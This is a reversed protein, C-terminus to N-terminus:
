IEKVAMRYDHRVELALIVGGLLAALGLAGFLVPWGFNVSLFSVLLPSLIQGTSGLGNVLGGASATKEARVAEQVGAGAMLTDPGFTFAGIVGIAALNAQPGWRSVYPYCLCLLALTFMMTAGVAFRKSAGGSQSAYGALLVGGFGALEFVASMYGADVAKYRLEETMYLPLWFLFAYRLLKVQFYMAAIARLRRNAWLERDAGPWILPSDKSNGKDEAFALFILAIVSLVIAPAFAAGRWGYSACYAAFASGALGGLVMHTGWWALIVSRRTEPFWERAMKLVGPWGSAQAAGNLGQVMVL